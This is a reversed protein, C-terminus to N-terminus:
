ECLEINTSKSIQVTMRGKSRTKDDFRGLQSDAVRRIYAKLETLSVEANSSAATAPPLGLCLLGAPETPQKM